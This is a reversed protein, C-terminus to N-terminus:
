GPLQGCTAESCGCTAAPSGEAMAAFSTFGSLTTRATTPSPPKRMFECTIVKHARLHQMAAPVLGGM